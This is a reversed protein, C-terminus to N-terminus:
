RQTVQRVPVSEIKSALDELKLEKGRMAEATPPPEPLM